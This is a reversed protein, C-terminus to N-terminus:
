KKDLFSEISSESTQDVCYTDIRSGSFMVEPDIDIGTVEANPFYDRWVRLSAGPNGEEGMNSPLETNTTGIGCELLSTVSNRRPSFILQYFDTYNHSPWSYPNSDSTLEGKDTGYKDCLKALKSRRNSNYNVYMENETTKSLKSIKRKIKLIVYCNKVKSPLIHKITSEVAAAIFRITLNIAVSIGRKDVIQIFRHLIHIPM